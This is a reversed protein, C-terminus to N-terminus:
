PLGAGPTPAVKSTATPSTARDGAPTTSLDRRRTTALRQQLRAHRFQYLPGTQRLIGLHHAETLFSQLRWPLDGRLALVAHATRYHLWASAALAPVLLLLSIPVTVLHRAADPLMSWELAFPTRSLARTALYPVVVLLVGCLGYVVCMLRDGRLSIRASTVDQAAVPMGAWRVLMMGLSLFLSILLGGRWMSSPVPVGDEAAAWHISLLVPLSIAASATATRVLARPLRRRWGRTDFAARSPSSPPLPPGACTFLVFYMVAVDGSDTLVVAWPRAADQGGMGALAVTVSVASVVGACVAIVAAALLRRASLVRSRLLLAALCPLSTLTLALHATWVAAPVWSGGVHNGSPSTWGHLTLPFSVAAATLGWAVARRWTCRLTSVTRYLQWWALDSTGQETLHRALRALYHEARRPDWRGEGRRVRRTFLVPILRDLLHDEIAAANPFRGADALEAPDTRDGGGRVDAYVARVLAVVLPSALARAAAGAPECVVHRALAEWCQQRACGPPTALQLMALSDAPRLPAPEVVAAGVLVGVGAVAAAYEATRCTLVPPATPPLTENLSALAAAQARPPLEDMGDLVPLLWGDALLEAVEGPRLAPYDAAVVRRLWVPASERGPDFSALSLLVPVPERANRDHLLALTLLVALTTKGTGADGLAVLRRRPLGRYIAALEEPIDARCAVPEGVVQRHDAVGPLLCDAWAVPLPAPVLLQRLVAENEWQRRVARALAGAAEEPAHRGRDAAAGQRTGGRAWVGLVAFLGVVASVLSSATAASRVDGLVWVLGLGGALCVCLTWM